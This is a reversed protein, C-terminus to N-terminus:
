EHRLHPACDRMYIQHNTKSLESALVQNENILHAYRWAYFAANCRDQLNGSWGSKEWLMQIVNRAEQPTEPPAFGGAGRSLSLGGDEFLRFQEEVQRRVEAETKGLHPECSEM